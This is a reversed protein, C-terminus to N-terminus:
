QQNELVFSVDAIAKRAMVDHGKSNPHTPTTASDTIFGSSYCNEFTIGDKDFEVLGCGMTNAIERIADNMQPLTCISNRTPFVNYIMRKFVNLTCCVIYANPYAQRLKQITKYYGAKFQYLSNIYDTNPIGNSLDVDDIHVIPGHSFDNTGRYIFIIDPAIEDGNETRGKCRGITYDNWAESLVYTGTQGTTIRSGSWSANALLTAGTLECFRQSWVKTSAANYNLAVGIEKGVDGSVPTFTQLTGIMAATLAVGGITKNTPSTGGEDAWVDWWTVYSQITQGVDNTQVKWYPTNRGSITSISDGIVAIRKGSLNPLLQVRHSLFQVNNLLDTVVQNIPYEVIFDLTFTQGSTVSFRLYKAGTAIDSPLVTFYMNGDRREIEPNRFVSAVALATSIGVNLYNDTIGTVRYKGAQLTGATTWFTGGSYDWIEINTADIIKLRQEDDEIRQELGAINGIKVLLDTQGMINFTFPRIYSSHGSNAGDARIYSVGNPIVIIENEYQVGGPLKSEIFAKNSDFTAIGSTGRGVYGSYIIIDGPTVPIFDTYDFTDLGLFVGDTRSIFGGTQKIGSFSQRKVLADINDRLGDINDRLGDFENPEVFNESNRILRTIAEVYSSHTNNAMTVRIFAIDNPITTQENYKAQSGTSLARVFQKNSNYGAINAVLNNGSWGSLVVIDGNSVPIFDSNSFTTTADIGGGTYIIGYNNLYISDGIVNLTAGKTNLKHWGTDFALIAIEGDNVVANNFNAYTGKTGTIYFVKADPTGPNTTPTAIGVFQYGAGLSNIMALLSQQLLAGTIENNGNTKVVDQIASKLTEYNAM